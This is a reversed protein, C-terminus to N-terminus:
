HYYDKTSIKHGLAEVEFVWFHCKEINMKLKFKRLIKFVDALDILHQEISPSYIIDDLYIQVCKNILDFFIRNMERQFTAPANTLRFPMVKFYYNGFKTTFSTIEQDSEYM